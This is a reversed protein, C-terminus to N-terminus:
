RRFPSQTLTWAYDQRRLVTAIPVTRSGPDANDIFGSTTALDTQRHSPSRPLSGHVRLRDFAGHYGGRNLVASSAPRFGYIPPARPPSLGHCAARQQEEGTEDHSGGGGGGGRGGGSGGGGGGGRKRAGGRVDVEVGPQVSARRHLRLQVRRRPQGVLADGRGVRPVLESPQAARQRM